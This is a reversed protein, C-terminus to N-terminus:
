YGLTKALGRRIMAEAEKPGHAEVMKRYLARHAAMPNSRVLQSFQAHQEALKKDIHPTSTGQPAGQPAGKSRGYVKKGGVMQYTGGRPGRMVAGATHQRMAQM